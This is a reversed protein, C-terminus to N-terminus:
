REGSPAPVLEQEAPKLRARSAQDLFDRVPEVGPSAGRVTMRRRGGEWRLEIRNLRKKPEAVSAVEGAFWAHEELLRRLEQLTEPPVSGTWTLKRNRAAVGGGFGIERAGNVRYLVALNEEGLVWLELYFGDRFRVSPDDLRPPAGACGALALLVLILRRTM